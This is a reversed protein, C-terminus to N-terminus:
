VVSKRDAFAHRTFGSWYAEAVAATNGLARQIDILVQMREEPHRCAQGSPVKTLAIEPQGCALYVRAVDLAVLQYEDISRGGLAAEEHLVPDGISEAVQGLRVRIGGFKEFDEGQMRFRWQTILRQLAEENLIKAAEDFMTDRTGFDHFDHLALFVEEAEEPKGAATSALGLLQCARHYAGAMVGNSDDANGIVSSDTEIFKQLTRLALIPDAPILDREISDLVGRLERAFSESEHFDIFRSRPRLGSIRSRISKALGEPDNRSLFLDVTKATAEDEQTLDALLSALQEPSFAALKKILNQRSDTNM